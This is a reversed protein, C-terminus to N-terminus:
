RGSVFASVYVNKSWFIFIPFPLMHKFPSADPFFERLPNEVNSVSGSQCLTDAGASFMASCFHGTSNPPFNSSLFKKCRLDVSVVNIQCGVHVQHDNNGEKCFQIVSSLQSRGSILERANRLLPIVCFSNWIIHVCMHMWMTYQSKTLIISMRAVSRLALIGTCGERFHHVHQVYGRGRRRCCSKESAMRYHPSM